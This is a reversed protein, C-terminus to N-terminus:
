LILGCIDGGVFLVQFTIKKLLEGWFSSCVFPSAHGFTINNGAINEAKYEKLVRIFYYHVLGGVSSSLYCDKGEQNRLHVQAARM